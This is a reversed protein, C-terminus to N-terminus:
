LSKPWTQAGPIFDKFRDTKVFSDSKHFNTTGHDVIFTTGQLVQFFFIIKNGEGEVQLSPNPGPGVEASPGSRTRLYGVYTETTLSKALSINHKNIDGM